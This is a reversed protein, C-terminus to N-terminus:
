VRACCADEARCDEFLGELFRSLAAEDGPAFGGRRVEYEIRSGYRTWVVRGVLHDGSPGRRLRNRRVAFASSGVFGVFPKGFLFTLSDLPLPEQVADRLRRIVQDPGVSVRLIQAFARM